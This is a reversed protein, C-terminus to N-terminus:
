RFTVRVSQYKNGLPAGEPYMDFAFVPATNGTPFSFSDNGKGTSDTKIDGLIYQCKLFLHYTTTPAVNTLRVDVVTKGDNRRTVTAEGGVEAPPAASVDSNNCDSYDKKVFHTLTQLKPEAMATGPFTCAFALVTAALVAGLIPKSM